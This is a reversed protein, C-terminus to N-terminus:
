GTRHPSPEEDPPGLRFGAVTRGENNLGRVAQVEQAPEPALQVVFFRRGPAQSSAVTEAEPPQGSPVDIVVKAVEPATIGIVFKPVQEENLGGFAYRLREDGNFDQESDEDCVLFDGADNTRRLQACVPDGPQVVFRWDIGSGTNGEALVLPNSAPSPSGAPGATPSAVPSTASQTARSETSPNGGSCAACLSLALVGILSVIGRIM